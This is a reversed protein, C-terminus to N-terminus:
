FNISYHKEGVASMCILCLNVYVFVDNFNLANKYTGNLFFISPKMAWVKKGLSPVSGGKGFFSYIAQLNTVVAKGPHTACGFHKNKAPFLPKYFHLKISVKPGGVTCGVRDYSNASQWLFFLLEM